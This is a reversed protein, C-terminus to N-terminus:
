GLLLIQKCHYKLKLLKYYCYYNTNICFIMNCNTYYYYYTMIFKKRWWPTPMDLWIKWECNHTHTIRNTFYFQHFLLFNLQYFRFGIPFIIFDLRSPIFNTLLKIVNLDLGASRLRALRAPFCYIILLLVLYPSMNM